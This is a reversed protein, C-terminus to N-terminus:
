SHPYLRPSLALSKSLARWSAARRLSRSHTLVAPNFSPPASIPDDIMFSRALPTCLLLFNLRYISTSQIFYTSSIKSQPQDPMASIDNQFPSSQDPVFLSSSPMKVDAPSPAKSTATSGSDTGTPLNAASDQWFSAPLSWRNAPMSEVSFGADSNGVDLNDLGFDMQSNFHQPQSSLEPFHLDDGSPLEDVESLTASSTTLAPQTNKIWDLNWDMLNTASPPASWTNMTNQNDVTSAPLQSDNFDFGMNQNSNDSASTEPMAFPGSSGQFFQADTPLSYAQEFPGARPSGNESQSVRSDPTTTSTPYQQQWIAQVSSQPLALSDVSRRAPNASLNHVTHSRPLKYPMGCEHAAFNNRHVPKHHGNAFVTLHGDSQTTVLRPKPRSQPPPKPFYEEMSEQIPEVKLSSCTCKEGHHCCCGHNEM